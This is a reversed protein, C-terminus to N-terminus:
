ALRDKMLIVLNAELDYSILNETLTEYAEYTNLKSSPFPKEQFSIFETLENSFLQHFVCELETRTEDTLDSKFFTYYDRLKEHEVRVHTESLILWDAVTQIASIRSCGYLVLGQILIGVGRKSKNSALKPTYTSTTFDTIWAYSDCDLNEKRSLLINLTALLDYTIENKVVHKQEYRRKLNSLNSELFAYFTPEDM